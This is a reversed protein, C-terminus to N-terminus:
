QAVPVDGQSGFTRYAPTHTSSRFIYWTGDRYVGLDTIGDGDYDGPVPKDTGLGWKTQTAEGDTSRLIWWDGSTPRFIAMDTRGDGDYDGDVVEDGSLGFPKAKFTNTDSEMVYWTGDSPRFVSVDSIGDGDFDAKEASMECPLASYLSCRTATLLDNGGLGNDRTSFLYLISGDPSLSAAGDDFPSNIRPALTPPEWPSNTSARRSVWIDFGTPSGGGPRLSTLFCELGDRRLVVRIDALPGNLEPVLKPPNFTGDGNRVSQYIHYNIGPTGVRDSAFFISRTKALEDEFYTPALDDASSNVVAGLNVPTTWGFDDNPDTRISVYNDRQGFGGPRNSQLFMTNGNVSLSGISENDSTNITVGLNQPPGWESALTSRHSVWIDAGGQGGAARNSTFFLSLGNSSIVANLDNGTSNLTPGMSRVRSLYNHQALSAIPMIAIALITIFCKRKIYTM